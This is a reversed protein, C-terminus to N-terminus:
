ENKIRKQSVLKVVNDNLWEKHTPCISEKAGDKNAQKRCKEAIIICIEGNKKTKM